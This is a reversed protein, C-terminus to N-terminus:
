QAFKNMLYMLFNTIVFGAFSMSIVKLSGMIIALKVDQKISIKEILIIKENMVNQLIKREEDNKELQHLRYETGEEGV